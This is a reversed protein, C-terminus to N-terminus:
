TLKTDIGTRSRRELQGAEEGDTLVTDRSIVSTIGLRMVPQSLYTNIGLYTHLHLYFWPQLVVVGAATHAPKETEIISKITKLQAETRVQPPHLLVCFRHPTPAGFLHELSSKLEKNVGCSTRTATNQRYLQANEVIMPKYGTYIEIIEELGARTGRKKYLAAAQQLFRRRKEASWSEDFVAGVWTGLWALFEAPTAEVDVYRALHTIENEKDDLFSEFLSLFRELFDKSAEDEQYAAPLYRLYSIRPFFLKISRVKPTQYEDSSILELKLWLYRGPPGQILAEHLTMSSSYFPLLPSWEAEQLEELAKKEDASHYYVNLHTKDPIEANLAMKHWRCGPETSDFAHTIFTGSEKIAYRERIFRLFGIEDRKGTIVYFNGCTDRAIGACSGQYGLLPGAYNGSHAFTHIFREEEKGKLERTDGVYVNGDFDIALGSPEINLEELNFEPQVLEDKGEPSFKLIKRRKKDLVYLFGATDLAIQVSEELETEACTGKFRGGADFKLVRHNVGDLAYMTERKDSRGVAIDVPNFNGGVGAPIAHGGADTTTVIWRLQLNIRAFAQIRNNGTDAIYLTDTSLAIGRPEKFQGPLSGGVGGYRLREMRNNRPDYTLICDEQADLIYLVGCTDVVIDTAELWATSGGVKRELSYSPDRKLMIGEDSVDLNQRAGEEWGRRTTIVLCTFETAKM